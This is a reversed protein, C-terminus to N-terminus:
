ALSVDISGDRTFPSYRHIDTTPLKLCVVWSTSDKAHDEIIDVM